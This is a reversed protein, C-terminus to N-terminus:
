QSYSRNLATCGLPARRDSGNRILPANSSPTVTRRRPRLATSGLGRTVNLYDRHNEHETCAPADPEAVMQGNRRILGVITDNHSDIVLADRHVTQWDYDPIM